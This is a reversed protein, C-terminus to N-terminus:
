NTETRAVIASWEREYTEYDYEYAKQASWPNNTRSLLIPLPAVETARFPTLGAKGYTEWRDRVLFIANKAITWRSKAFNGISNWVETNGGLDWGYCMTLGNTANAYVLQGEDSVMFKLFEKAIEAKPSYEPICVTFNNVYSNSWSRAVRVKEIIEDTTFGKSSNVTPKTAITGDVYGVVSSLEQETIGLGLTSNNALASIVPYRIFQVDVNPYQKNMETQVWDGIPLMATAGSMFLTQAVDWELGYGESYYYGGKGLQELVKYAEEVGQNHAVAPGIQMGFPTSYRGEFYNTVGEEGNLQAFWVRSIGGYYDNTASHMLPSLGATKLAACFTLLEDTTRCPYTERWNEGLVAKVADNNVCLGGVEATWPMAYYVDKGDVKKVIGKLANDDVNSIVATGARSGESITSEYVDNLSLLYETDAAYTAGNFALDYRCYQSGAQIKEKIQSDSYVKEIEYKYQPNKECFRKLLADVWDTGYGKNICVAYITDAKNEDSSGCGVFCGACFIACLTFVLIKTLKRM